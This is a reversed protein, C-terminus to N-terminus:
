ERTSLFELHRESLMPVIRGVVLERYHQSSRHAQLADEDRYREVLLLDVGSGVQQYIEYGLCGPEGLSRQRAEAVLKLVENLAHENTRWRAVAVVEAPVSRVNTTM